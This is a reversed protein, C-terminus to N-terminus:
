MRRADPMSTEWIAVVDVQGYVRQPIPDGFNFAAGQPEFVVVGETYVAPAPDEGLPTLGGLPHEYGVANLIDAEWLGAEEDPLDGNYSSIFGINALARRQWRGISAPRYATTRQVVCVAPTEQQSFICDRLYVRQDLRFHFDGGQIQLLLERLTRFVMNRIPDPTLM